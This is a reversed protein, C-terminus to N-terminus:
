NQWTKEERRDFSFPSAATRQDKKIFELFEMMEQKGKEKRILDCVWCLASVAGFVLSLFAILILGLICLIFQIM